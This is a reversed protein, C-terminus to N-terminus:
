LDKAGRFLAKFSKKLEHVTEGSVSSFTPKSHPAPFYVVQAADQGLLLLGLGLRNDTAEHERRKSYLAFEGHTM